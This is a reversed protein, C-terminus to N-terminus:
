VVMLNMREFDFRKELSLDKHGQVDDGLIKVRQQEATVLAAVDVDAPVFSLTWQSAGSHVITNQMADIGQKFGAITQDDVGAQRMYADVKELTEPGYDGGAGTARVLLETLQTRTKPGMSPYDLVDAGLGLAKSLANLGNQIATVPGEASFKFIGTLRSSSQVVPTPAEVVVEPPKMHGDVRALSEARHAKQSREVEALIPAKLGQLLAKGPDAGRSGGVTSGVARDVFSDPLHSLLNIDTVSPFEERLDKFTVPDLVSAEAMMSMLVDAQEVSIAAPRGAQIDGEALALVHEKTVFQDSLGECFATMYRTYDAGQTVQPDQGNVIQDLQLVMTRGLDHTVNPDKLNLAIDFGDLGRYLRTGLPMDVVRRSRGSGELRSQNADNIQIPEGGNVTLVSVMLDRVGENKLLEDLTHRVVIEDDNTLTQFTFIDDVTPQNSSAM